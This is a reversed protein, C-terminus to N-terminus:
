RISYNPKMKLLGLRAMEEPLKDGLETKVVYAECGERFASFIHKSQHQSTIMIVKVGDLGEVGQQQEFKRIASLTQHGDMEPMQIDLTVLQFPRGENFAQRFLGCGRKGDDAFTCDCYEQLIMRVRQRCVQDDDIVLANIKRFGPSEAFGSKGAGGRRIYEVATAIWDKVRLVMDARASMGAIEEFASEAEHCLAYVDMLGSMGSDGKISHLIRRIKACNEQVSRGAELNMAAEEMQGLLTTVSDVYPEWLEEIIAELRIGEPNPLSGKSRLARFDNSEM